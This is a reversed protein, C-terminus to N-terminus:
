LYVCKNKHRLWRGPVFLNKHEKLRGCVWIFGFVGLFNFIRNRGFLTTRRHKRDHKHSCNIHPSGIFYLWQIWKVLMVLTPINKHAGKAPEGSNIRRTYAIIPARSQTDRIFPISDYLLSSRPFCFFTFFVSGRKPVRCKRRQTHTHSHQTWEIGHTWENTTNAENNRRKILGNMQMIIFESWM